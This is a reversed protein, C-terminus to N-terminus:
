FHLESIDIEISIGPQGSGQQLWLYKEALVSKLPSGQWTQDMGHYM